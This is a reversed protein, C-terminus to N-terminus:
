FFSILVELLSIRSATDEHPGDSCKKLISWVRRWELFPMQGCVGREEAYCEFIVSLLHPQKTMFRPSQSISPIRKHDFKFFHSNVYRFYLFFIHCSRIASVFFSWLTSMKRDLMINKYYKFTTMELKEDKLFKESETM